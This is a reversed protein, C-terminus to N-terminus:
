ANLNSVTFNLRFKFNEYFLIDFIEMNKQPNNLFNIHSSENTWGLISVMSKPRNPNLM